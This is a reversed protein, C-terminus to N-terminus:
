LFSVSSSFLLTKALRGAISLINTVKAPGIYLKIRAKTTKANTPKNMGLSDSRTEAVTSSYPLEFINLTNATLSSGM